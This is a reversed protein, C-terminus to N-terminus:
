HLVVLMGGGASGGAVVVVVEEEWGQLQWEGCVGGENGGGCETCQHGGQRHRRGGRGGPVGAPPRGQPPAGRQGGRCHADRPCVAAPCCPCRLADKSGTVPLHSALTAACRSAPLPGALDAGAGAGAQRCWYRVKAAAPAESEEESGEEEEAEEEDDDDANLLAFVSGGAPAGGGGGGKNKKKGGAKQKTHNVPAPEEESGEEDDSAAAAPPPQLKPEDEEDSDFAAAKKGGKRDKKGKKEKKKGTATAPPRPRTTARQRRCRRCRCCAAAATCRPPDAHPMGGAIRGGLLLTGDSPALWCEVLVADSGFTHEATALAAGAAGPQAAEDGAAAAPEKLAKLEGDSDLAFDDEWDANGKRGKKGMTCHPGVAPTPYLLAM